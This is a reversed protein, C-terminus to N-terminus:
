LNWADEYARQLARAFSSASILLTIIGIITLGGSASPPREFLGEVAEASSGELDFRDILWGGIAQADNTSVVTAVVILMPVLAIFAQGAMTLARDYLRVALLAFVIRGLWTAAFRRVLRHERWDFRM